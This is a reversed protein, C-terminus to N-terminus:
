SLIELHAIKEGDLTLAYRLEVTPRYKRTADEKWGRIAAIGQRERGEDRVVADDTFCAACADADHANSGAIYVAIPKPLEISM